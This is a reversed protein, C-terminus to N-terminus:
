EKKFTVKGNYTTDGMKMRYIYMGSIIAEPRFEANYMTGGEIQQEFITKVMRGTMDYLDIRANVSVPSVFEFRLRDSFPNPYVKLDANTVVVPEIATTIEASKTQPITQAILTCDGGGAVKIESGSTIGQSLTKTGNWNSSFWIGGAKRYLTIALEKTCGNQFATMQFTAGGEIAVTSLNDLIEVLNAKASFTGTALPTGVNLSAIANTTILYTHLKSDLIGASTYFSRVLVTVKGKPNTGSKTYQIDFEYDTNLGSHGKILGGSTSNRIQGGGAIYGGAVPKSVTVIQQSLADAPNNTYAGTIGVAIHFSQANASGINLQVIASAAGITGDNVDILGVPLNQASPIPTLTTGNVYYFTVKAGRVDGTPTNADTIIAALTVTATSTSQGTTWAFLDGAYFGTANYPSANRPVVTLPKTDNDGSYNTNTCTFIAEVTYNGPFNSVQPIVTAQVSGDTADPIPVVIASGYSIGGIKFEVTGTLPSGTNLPKIQATMTLYDKYRVSQASTILTTTTSAQTITMIGDTKTVNYNPNSGLTVEIPYNGVPSLKVATTSLSYNVADCGIAENVVVATLAPNDTGYIKTKNDATVSANRKNITL